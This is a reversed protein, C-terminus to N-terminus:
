SQKELSQVVKSIIVNHLSERNEYTVELIEADERARIANILSDRARFHITGVVPKGSEIAQDVAKRFEPSFLEMPGIEDIIVTKQGRLAGELAPLAVKEFSGIDVKYRGVRYRSKIDVSSLIETAGVLSRVKFGIRQGDRRIEETYFGAARDSLELSIKKILTTKGIGPRGTILINM